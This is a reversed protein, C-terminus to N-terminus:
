WKVGHYHFGTGIFGVQCFDEPHKRIIYDIYSMVFDATLKYGAANLHGGLYYNKRFEDDYVPAYKYFDLVYTFEFKEALSALFDRHEKRLEPKNEKGGYTERPMSMLFVRAKPQMKKIKQVIKAYEGAFTPKNNEYNEFDIDKLTGVPNGTNLVDNVGLAIVYAQCVNEPQEFGCAKGFSANFEKATMGGRSFNIAKLGCRRAIFQGWSYEFMDHWSRVGEATLAEFEGSSLSDGVFGVTRFVACLGGDPVANALPNEPLDDIKKLILNTNM